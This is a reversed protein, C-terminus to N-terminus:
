SPIRWWIRHTHTRTSTYKERIGVQIIKFVDTQHPRSVTTAPCWLKTLMLKFNIRRVNWKNPVCHGPLKVCISYTFPKWYKHIRNQTNSTHNPPAKQTCVRWAWRVALIGYVIQIIELPFIQPSSLSCFFIARMRWQIKNFAIYLKKRERQHWKAVDVDQSTWTEDVKTRCMQLESINVNHPLPSFYHNPRM